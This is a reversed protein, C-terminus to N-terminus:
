FSLTKKLENLSFKINQDKERFITKLSKIRKKGM